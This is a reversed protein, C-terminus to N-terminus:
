KKQQTIHPDRGYFAQAPRFSSAEEALGHRVWDDGTVGIVPVSLAYGLTNAVSLGIRLGTFSGPGSFVVIKEVDHAHVDAEKLVEDIKTHITEALIRHAEWRLEACQESGRFVYLEAEPKDTRICLTIM